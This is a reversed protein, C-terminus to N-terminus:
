FFQFTGWDSQSTCMRQVEVSNQSSQKLQNRVEISISKLGGDCKRLTDALTECFELVAGLHTEWSKNKNHSNTGAALFSQSCHGICWHGQALNKSAAIVAARATDAAM